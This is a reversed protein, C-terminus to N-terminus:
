NWSILILLTPDPVHLQRRKNIIYHGSKFHEHNDIMLPFIWQKFPKNCHLRCIKMTWWVNTQHAKCIRCSNIFDDILCKPRAMPFKRRTWRKKGVSNNCVYSVAALSPGRHLGFRQSSNHRGHGLTRISYTCGWDELFSFNMPGLFILRCWGVM